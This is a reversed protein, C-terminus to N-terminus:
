LDWNEDAKAQLSELTPTDDAEVPTEADVPTEAAEPEANMNEDGSENDPRDPQGNM